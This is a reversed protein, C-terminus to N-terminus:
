DRWNWINITHENDTSVTALLNGEGTQSFGMCQVARQGYPLKIEIPEERTEPGPDKDRDTVGEASWIWVVPEAGVQGTAVTDRDPHM